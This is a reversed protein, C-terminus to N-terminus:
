RLRINGEEASRETLFQELFAVRDTAEDILKGTPKGLGHGASTEVRLLIPADCDQAAQLTAAFKLSHGPVVRDDHDGTLIMTPPYCRGDKINHLPSYARLWAYQEPDDPDGYDSTWAWGITFKHFRLMDFVGVDAVAAGFLEPQQTICAGVLLGGNSGGSIGIRDPRSWSGALWRACACFDEFVNQKQALRGANHWARGYEGGGRLNAVALVGGRDLWTAFTVGFSPTLPVNFGGYGYLLVRQEGDPQVDRRRTLFMPVKTGDSSSAFVQETLFQAPDIPSASGSVLTTNGNAVNHSCIAGSEVFSVARFYFVDRNPRGEVSGHGIPDGVISVFGPPAVERLLRGDLEHIRLVSHAHHLYHCVFTGGCLQVDLLTDPSEPIIEEWASEPHELDATVVRGREAGLDTFLFLRTGDNHVFASRAKFGSSTPILEGGSGALNGILLDNEPATGRNITIILYRGDDSVEARPLWDPHDPASFVIRDDAQPTGLQHLRISLGRSEDRYEGGAIPRDLGSYYFGAADGTWAARSFKSWEIRDPLDLGSRVGRIHWTMWDSGSESLAYAALNGDGSVEFGTLAATGNDSMRNPDLLIRGDDHAADGVYLVPQSQLGSNRTQFWWGGREFPVGQKPYDSLETIRARIEARAAATALVSETLANEAGIWAKTEPDDPDELWRYPDPVREGFHDDVVNSRRAPPYIPSAM